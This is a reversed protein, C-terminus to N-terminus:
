RGECPAPLDEFVGPKAPDALPSIKAMRGSVPALFAPLVAHFGSCRAPQSFERVNEDDFVVPVHALRQALEKPFFADGGDADGVARLCAGRSVM